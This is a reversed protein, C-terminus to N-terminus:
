NSTVMAKKKVYVRHLGIYTVKIITYVPIALFMGFPGAITGGVFVMLFIELPHAKVSKSFIIPQFIFSDLTQTAVVITTIKLLFFLLYESNIIDINSAVGLLLALAISIVQGLYPIVNIIGVLIGILIYNNIGILMLAISVITSIITAQILLGIFYRSLLNEINNFVNIYDTYYKGPIINAVSKKLLNEDKLSFFSIFLVSFLGIVGNTIGNFFGSILNGANEQNMWNNLEETLLPKLFGPAKETLNNDILLHEIYYIQNDFVTTFQTPDVSKLHDVENSILPFITAFFLALLGFFLLFAIVTSIFRPVRFKVLKGKSLYNVLPNLVFTLFMAFLIYLAIIRFYWLLFAALVGALSFWYVQYKKDTLM